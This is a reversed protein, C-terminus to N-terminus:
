RKENRNHTARVKPVATRLYVRDRMYVCDCLKIVVTVKVYSVITRDGVHRRGPGPPVWAPAATTAIPMPLGTARRPASPRPPPPFRPLHPGSPATGCDSGYFSDAQGLPFRYLGGLSHLFKLGVHIYIPSSIYPNRIYHERRWQRADTHLGLLGSSLAVLSRSVGRAHLEVSCTRQATRDPRSRRCVRRRNWSPAPSKAVCRLWLAVCPDCDACAARYM